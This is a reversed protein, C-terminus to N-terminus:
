VSSLWRYGLGYVSAIASFDPDIAEFKRRIRKIHATITQDDLVVGAANMLQTRSRVQGPQEALCAVIQFETVTLALTDGQWRILLRDTELQLDGVVQVTNGRGADGRGADGRGADGRGTDAYAKVRRLLTQIRAVLESLSISKSVYDDAGLRLGSIVDIEDDRATLFLIPLRESCARLERCLAFGADPDRGLGIDIVAVDPMCENVAEWAQEPSAAEVVRYGAREFALIYNQRLSDEDEVLLVRALTGTLESERNQPTPLEGPPSETSRSSSM